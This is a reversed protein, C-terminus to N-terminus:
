AEQHQCTTELNEGDDANQRWVEPLPLVCGWGRIFPWSRLLIGRPPSAKKAEDDECLTVGVDLLLLM